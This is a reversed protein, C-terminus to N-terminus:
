NSNIEHQEGMKSIALVVASVLLFSGYVVIVDGPKAIRVAANYAIEPAQYIMKPEDGLLLQYAETLESVSASREHQILTLHWTSAHARLPLMVDYLKKDSLASFVIHIKKQTALPQLYRALLRAAQPNHAVDILTPIPANQLWQIRGKLHVQRAADIWHHELVPLKDQLLYAALMASAFAQPNISPTPIQFAAHGQNITLSLTDASVKFHYDHNLRFLKIQFNEAADLLSQPAANDAYIAMQHQRFVGAKQTAIAERTHGLWAEHDLDITTIISLCADVCNTADLLGGMGVELLIVDLPHKKFYWFAALTTMEFYTLCESGPAQHIALFAECLAADSIEAQNMRIRENFTLLHPSTYAGVRFGAACYIAELSAITSGKGNTGAVTVIPASFNLLDLASATTKIRSLGPQIVQQHRYELFFLWDKLSFESPIKM